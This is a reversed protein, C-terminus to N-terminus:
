VGIHSLFSRSYPARELTAQVISDVVSKAEEQIGRSALVGNFDEFSREAVCRLLKVTEPDISQAASDHIRCEKCLVGQYRLSFALSQPYLRNGCETCHYLDPEWGATAIAQWEYYAVVKAPDYHSNLRTLSDRLLEPFRRSLQGEPTLKSVLEAIYSAAALRGLDRRVFEYQELARAGTLTLLESRGEALMFEAYMFPEVHGALRSKIRRVGKAVVKIKGFDESYVELIRDAEGFNHGRLVIGKTKKLM